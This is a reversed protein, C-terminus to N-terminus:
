AVVNAEVDKPWGTLGLYLEAKEKIEAEMAMLEEVDWQSWVFRGHLFAAAETALWVAMSGPLSIDDRSIPMGSKVNMETEIAGPHLSIIKIGPNEVAMTTILQAEGAKSACYASMTPFAAHAAPSNLSIFTPDHSGIHGQWAQFTLLTGKINVEFSRWWEDVAATAAPASKSLYGANGVLVDIKGAAKETGEFAAKLAAADMVDAQFTLIKSSGAKELVARGQALVNERRGLITVSKAGAKVFAEAIGLGVGNGGGTVLVVKGAASNAPNTPSIAPYSSRHITKTYPEFEWQGTGVRAFARETNVAM